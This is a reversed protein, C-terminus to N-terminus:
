DIWLKFNRESLGIRTDNRTTGTWAEIDLNIGVVKWNAATTDYQRPSHGSANMAVIATHLQQPSMTFCYTQMYPYSGIRFHGNGCSSVLTSAGLQPSIEGANNNSPDYSFQDGPNFDWTYPPGEGHTPYASQVLRPTIYLLQYPDTINQLYLVMYSFVAGQSPISGDGASPV